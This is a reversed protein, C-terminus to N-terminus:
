RRTLADADRQPRNLLEGISTLARGLTLEVDETGDDGIAWAMGFVRMTTNVDLRGRRVILPLVDGVNPAGYFYVDPSLRATYSPVLDMIKGLRGVAQENLQRWDIVDPANNSEMWLGVQAVTVDNSDSSWADGANQDGTGTDQGIFRVFNGYDESSVYRTLSALSAGYVLPVDDRIQGQVPYFLRVADWADSFEHPAPLLDFDFGNVCAALNALAEGINQAALYTRDRLVGSLARGVTGDPLVQEGRMPLYDGPGFTTGDALRLRFLALDSAITDQDAQAYTFPVTNFRRQLVALYDLATFTVVASTETLQDESAMVPGRFMCVDGGTREDFRWARVDTQLERVYGAAPDAGDLTFTLM